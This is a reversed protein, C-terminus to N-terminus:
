NPNRRRTRVVYTSCGSDNEAELLPLDPNEEAFSRLLRFRSTMIDSNMRSTTTILNDIIRELVGLEVDPYAEAVQATLRCMLGQVQTRLNDLTHVIKMIRKKTTEDAM